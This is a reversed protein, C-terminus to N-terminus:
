VIQKKRFENKVNFEPFNGEGLYIWYHRSLCTLYVDNTLPKGLYKFLLSKKKKTEFVKLCSM